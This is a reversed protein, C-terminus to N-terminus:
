ETCGSWIFNFLEYILHTNTLYCPLCGTKRGWGGPNVSYNVRSGAILHAEDASRGIFIHQVIKNGPGLGVWILIKPAM